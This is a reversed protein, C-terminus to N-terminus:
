QTEDTDGRLQRIENELKAVQGILRLVAQQLKDVRIETYQTRQDTM